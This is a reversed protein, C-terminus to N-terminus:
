ESLREQLSRIQDRLQAAKEFEELEVSRALQERLKELDKKIKLEGKTREPIKGHHTTSGHIRRLLPDLRDRFTEFCDSCGFRGIKSFQNYTLGCTACRPVTQQAINPSESSVMDFNLLGSLLNHFSFGSDFGPMYEGKEQACVECLHAETKEGNVIKTYHLTAPRKGCEPCLM